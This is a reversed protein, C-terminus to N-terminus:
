ECDEEFEKDFAEELLLELIQKLGYNHITKLHYLIGKPYKKIYKYCVPCLFVRGQPIDNM